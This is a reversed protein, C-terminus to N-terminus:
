WKLQQAENESIIDCIKVAKRIKQQGLKATFWPVDDVTVFIDSDVKRGLPIIDGKQLNVVEQTDLQVTGLLAKIELDTGSLARYILERRAREKEADARLLSRGYKGSVASSNLIADLSVASLCISITDVIDRMRIEFSM